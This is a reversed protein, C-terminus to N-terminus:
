GFRDRRGFQSETSFPSIRISHRLFVSFFFLPIQNPNDIFRNKKRASPTVTNAPAATSEPRPDTAISVFRDDTGSADLEAAPKAYQSPWRDSENSEFASNLNRCLIETVSMLVLVLIAKEM